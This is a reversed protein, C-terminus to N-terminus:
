DEISDISMIRSQQVKGDVMICLDAENIIEHVQEDPERTEGDYRVALAKDDLQVAVTLLVTEPMM